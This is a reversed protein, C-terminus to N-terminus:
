EIVEKGNIIKYFQLYEKILKDTKGQKKVLKPPTKLGKKGIRLTACKKIAQLMCWHLYGSQKGHEYYEWKWAPIFMISLAETWTMIRNFIVHYSGESSQMILYGELKFRKLLKEAVEEVDCLYTKDLDMLVGKNTTYGLIVLWGTKDGIHYEVLPANKAFRQIDHTSQNKELIEWEIETLNKM